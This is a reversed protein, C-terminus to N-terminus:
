IKKLALAGLEALIALITISERKVGENTRFRASDFFGKTGVLPVFPEAERPEVRTRRLRRAADEFAKLPALRHRM